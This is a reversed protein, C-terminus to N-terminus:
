KRREHLAELLQNIDDPLEVQWMVPTLTEPHKFQIRHAHLAQRPFNVNSKRTGYVSDGQIPHGLHALHVRIQHTRGTVIGCKVLTWDKHCKVPCYHTIAEKGSSTVCMKTRNQRHRGIPANVTGSNEVKGSVVALYEKIVLRNQLQEVLSTRAIQNKSILVLGSTDKDLRHVIGARPLESLSPCYHLLGNLLTGTKNGNGPHMVLGPPKDIVIISSDEYIINLAIDEPQNGIVPEPDDEKISIHEGAWVKTKPPVPQRNLRVLGKKLWNQIEGRSYQPLLHSIGKDIRTGSMREPIILELKGKEFEM